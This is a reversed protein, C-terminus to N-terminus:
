RRPRACVDVHVNCGGGLRNLASDGTACYLYMSYKYQKITEDDMKAVGLEPESVAWEKDGGPIIHLGAPVRAATMDTTAGGGAAVLETQQYGKDLHFNEPFVVAVNHQKVERGGGSEAYLRGISTFGQPCQQAPLATSALSITAIGLLPLLKKTLRM